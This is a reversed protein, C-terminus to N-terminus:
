DERDAECKIIRDVVHTPEKGISNTGGWGNDDNPVWRRAIEALEDRQTLLTLCQEALEAVIGTIMLAKAEILEEKSRWKM